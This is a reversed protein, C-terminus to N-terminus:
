YGRPAGPMAAQAVGAIWQAVRTSSGYDRYYAYQDVIAHRGKEFKRPNDFAEEVATKTEDYSRTVPVWNNDVLRKFHRALTWRQFQAAAHDPQLDSYVPVVTPTDHLAAELVWSSGPTVIVDSHRLLNTQEQLDDRSPCWGTGPMVSAFSIKIDPRNWYKRFCELHSTPHLRILLQAGRLIESARIMRLVDEVLHTEDRGYFEKDLVGCTALTILRRRPDLGMSSFAEERAVEFAPHYYADFSLAGNMMVENPRYHLLRIAEERNVPNWVSLLHCHSSLGKQINDWSKVVGLTQIGLRRAWTVVEYDHYLMPHSSVVVAPPLEEFTHSLYSPLQARRAEWRLMLSTLGRHHFKRRWHILRWNPGGVPLEMRRVVIRKHKPCQELFEAVNYSPSLLVIRFDPLLDILREVTGLILFDRVSQGVPITLYLNKLPM